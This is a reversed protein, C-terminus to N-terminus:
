LSGALGAYNLGDIKPFVEKPGFKFMKPRDSAREANFAKVAKAANSRRLRINGGNAIITERLRVFPRGMDYHGEAMVSAFDAALSPSVISFLYHLVHGYQNDSLRVGSMAKVSERLGPHAKLVREVAMPTAKRSQSTTHRFEGGFDVFSLLAQAAAAIKTAYLEGKMSLADATSRKKGSDLTRFAEPDIGRVVLTDWSVGSEICGQLRHQGNLLVGDVDFIITEGNLIMDGALFSDKMAKAHIGNMPRNSTNKDLMQAAIEPTVRIIEVFVDEYLDRLEDDIECSIAVSNSM